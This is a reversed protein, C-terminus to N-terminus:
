KGGIHRVDVYNLVNVHDGPEARWFDYRDFRHDGQGPPAPDQVEVFLGQPTDVYGIVVMLHGANTSVVRGAADLSTWTWNFGFPRGRFPGARALQRRLADPSLPPVERHSFGYKGFEPGGGRVCAAPTPSQCCDSRSLRNNAQTCQAVTVNGVHWMVTKGVAAWCWEGTEQPFVPVNLTESSSLPCRAYWSYVRDGNAAIDIDVIDRPAFGAAAAYPQAPTYADLDQSTGSSVTGDDYWAFVRDNSKAIAIGVVSLPDKGPALTYPRPPIDAALDRSTGASMTGDRYWAYVRDRVRESAGTIAIAVIDSPWRGPPLSFPQPPRYQGLHRTSGSSITGDRYWVYVHDDSGAIGIGVADCISLGPPAATGYPAFHADLDRSSGVGVVQEAVAPVGAALLAALGLAPAAQPFRPM